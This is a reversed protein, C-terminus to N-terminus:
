QGYLARRFVTEYIVGYTCHRSCTDKCANYSSYDGHINYFVWLPNSLPRSITSSGTAKYGTAKCWCYKGNVDGPNGSTAWTGSVNTCKSMGYIMGYYFNVKWEYSSLELFEGDCNEVGAKNGSLAHYCTSEDKAWRETGSRSTDLSSFDYEPQVKWGKFTYGTKTPNTPLDISTDYICKDSSTSSVNLMTNNDYWRLDIRNAEFDARLNATGSTTDLTDSDCDAPLAAGSSDAEIGSAFSPVSYFSFISFM